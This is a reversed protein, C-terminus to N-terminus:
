YFDNGTIEWPLLNEKDMMRDANKNVFQQKRKLEESNLAIKAIDENHVSNRNRIIAPNVYEYNDKM